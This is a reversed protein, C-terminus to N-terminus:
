ENLYRRPLRDSFGCVVEYAITDLWEAWQQAPVAGDDQTGLIVVEDGLEPRDDGMDLIVYDMTVRGAFPRRRGGVLSAGKVDGLRRTVGDAYGIPVTALYAAEELERVRGYSPRAGAPLRRVHVVESLVRMAPQLEVGLQQGPAPHLGYMSLGIRVMDRRSAPFLLAGASNAMHVLPVDIGADTVTSAFGNFLDIQHTTFEPDSDADAFHTWLGELDAKPSRAVAAALRQVTAGDTGLRHMGSDFKLHVKPVMGDVSSLFSELFGPDYITPTLEWHLVDNIDALPPQSLLLIPRRIDAERLRVGEEVTAVALLNAGGDIAARAVPVDGHGYADAKVVACFRAPATATIIRAVNDRIKQLDVEVWSPRM